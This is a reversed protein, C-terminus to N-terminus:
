PIISTARVFAIAWAEYRGRVTQAPRLDGLQSYRGRHHAHRPRRKAVLADHRVTLRGHGRHMGPLRDRGVRDVITRAAASYALPNAGNDYQSVWFAAPDSRLIREVERLRRRRIAARRRSKKWSSSRRAGSDGVPQALSSRDSSRRGPDRPLWANARRHGPCLRNARFHVRRSPRARGARGARRAEEIMSVAVGLKMLWFSAVFLNSDLQYVNPNTRQRLLELLHSTSMNGERGHPRHKLELRAALEHCRGYLTTESCNRPTRVIQRGRLLRGDPRQEGHGASTGISRIRSLASRRPTRRHRGSGRAHQRELPDNQFGPERHGVNKRGSFLRGRQDRRQIGAARSRRQSSDHRGRRAMDADHPRQKRRGLAFRRSFLMGFQMSRSLGSARRDHQRIRCGLSPRNSGFERQGVLTGDPSFAVSRVWGGHGRLTKLSASNNGAASWLKITGDRSATAVISGDPSFRVSNVQAEHEAFTAVSQKRAVDWLIATHDKSGSVLLKGDPSFAVSTVQDHHGSLVLRDRPTLNDLRWLSVNGSHQETQTPSGGEAVALLRGDRSFDVGAVAADLSIAAGKDAEAWNWFKVTCDISGSALLQETPSFALTYVMDRHGPFM